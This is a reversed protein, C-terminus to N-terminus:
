TPHTERLGRMARIGRAMDPVHYPKPVFWTDSPMEDAGPAPWGSTLILHAAPLVERVHHALTM